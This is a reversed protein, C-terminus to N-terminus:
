APTPSHYADYIEESYQWNEDYGHSAPADDGYVTEFALKTFTVRQEATQDRYAPAIMEGLTEGNSITYTGCNSGLDEDAFRVEFRVQPLKKSIHAILEFPHAWATQFEFRTEEDSFGSEPQGYANWKTGWHDNSWDYWYLYGCEAFNSIARVVAAIHEKELPTTADRMATSFALNATYDSLDSPTQTPESFLGLAAKARSLAGMNPEFERLCEPMPAIVNFDVRREDNLMASHVESLSTGGLDEITLITTVHNPM